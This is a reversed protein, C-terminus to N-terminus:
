MEGVSFVYEGLLSYSFDTVNTVSKFINYLMSYKM